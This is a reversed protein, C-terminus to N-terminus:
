GQDDRVVRFARKLLPTTDDPEKDARPPENWLAGQGEDGYDFNKNPDDDGPVVSLRAEEEAVAAAVQDADVPVESPPIPEAVEAPTSAATPEFPADAPTDPVAVEAGAQPAPQEERAPQEEPAPKEERAPQKKDAPQVKRAPRAAAKKRRGRRKPPRDDTLNWGFPVSIRDAHVECLPVGDLASPHNPAVLWAETEQPAILLVSATPEGCGVRGCLKLEVESVVSSAPWPVISPHARKM